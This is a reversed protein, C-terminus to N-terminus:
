KRYLHDTEVSGDPLRIVVEMTKSDVIHAGNITFAVKGTDTYYWTLGKFSITKTSVFYEYTGNITEVGNKTDLFSTVVNDRYFKVGITGDSDQYSWETGILDNISSGYDLKSCSSVITTVLLASVILLKRM